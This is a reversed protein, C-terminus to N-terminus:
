RKKYCKYQGLDRNYCGIEEYSHINGKKELVHSAYVGSEVISKNVITGAQLVVREALSVGLNVICRSGIYVYDGIEIAGDLRNGEVDFSHTFMQTDKGAITVHNGIIIPAVVDFYHGCQINACDGIEIIREFSKLEDVPGCFMCSSNVLSNKGVFFKDINKVRVLNGIVSNDGICLRGCRLITGLGISVYKGIKYGPLLSYLRARMKGSFPFFAIFMIIIKRM